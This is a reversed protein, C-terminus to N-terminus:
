QGRAVRLREALMRSVTEGDVWQPDRKAEDVAAREEPTEPREDMPANRVAEDTPDPNVSPANSMAPLTAGAAPVLALASRM